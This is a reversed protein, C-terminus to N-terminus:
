SVEEVLVEITVVGHSTEGDPDRMTRVSSVHADACHLGTELLLRSANIARRVEACILMAGELSPERKWVHATHYVRVHRRKLDTGEDVEQAEGLVISPSPAPRENRDLISGAPVLALVAPTGILRTRLARQVALAASM